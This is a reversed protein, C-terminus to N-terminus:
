ERPAGQVSLTRADKAAAVTKASGGSQRMSVVRFSVVTNIGALRPSTLVVIVRIFNLYMTTPFPLGALQLTAVDVQM